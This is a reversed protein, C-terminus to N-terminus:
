GVRNWHSYLHPAAPIRRNVLQGSFSASKARGRVVHLLIQSVVSTSGDRELAMTQLAEWEDGPDLDRREIRSSLDRRVGLVQTKAPAKNLGGGRKDVAGPDADSNRVVSRDEGGLPRDDVGAFSRTHSDSEGANLGATERDQVVPNCFRLISVVPLAPAHGPAHVKAM